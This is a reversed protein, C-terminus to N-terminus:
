RHRRSRSKKHRRTKRHRMTRRHRKTRRHKRRRGGELYLSEDDDGLEVDEEMNEMNDGEEGGRHKHRRRGGKKLNSIGSSNTNGPTLKTMISNAMNTNSSGSSSPGKM